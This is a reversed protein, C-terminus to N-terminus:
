HTQALAVAYLLGNMLCIGFLVHSVAKSAGWFIYQNVARIIWFAAIFWALSRGIPTTLLADSYVLSVFAFAALAITLHINLVQMVAAQRRDLAALSAPWKFLKWFLLHFMVFLLNIIGGATILTTEM